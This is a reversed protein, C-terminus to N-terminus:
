NWRGQLNGIDAIRITLDSALLLNAANSIVICLDLAISMGCELQLEWLRGIMINWFEPWKRTRVSELLDELSGRAMFDTAIRGQTTGTQYHLGL